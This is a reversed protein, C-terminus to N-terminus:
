FIYTGDKRLTYYQIRKGVGNIRRLLKGQLAWKRTMSRELESVNCFQPNETVDCAKMQKREQKENRREM